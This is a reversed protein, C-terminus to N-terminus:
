YGGGVVSFYSITGAGNKVFAWTLTQNEIGIFRGRGTAVSAFDVAVNKAANNLDGIPVWVSGVWSYPTVDVAGASVALVAEFSGRIELAQPPSQALLTAPGGPPLSALTIPTVITRTQPSDPTMSPLM